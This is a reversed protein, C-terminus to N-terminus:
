TAATVHRGDGAPHWRTDHVAVIRLGPVAAAGLLDLMRALLVPAHVTTPQGGRAVAAQLIAAAAAADAFGLGAADVVCTGVMTPLGALLGSLAASNALDAEGTLRVGLRTRRCRLREPGDGSGDLETTEADITAPHVRAVQQWAGWGNAAPDYHCMASLPLTTFLENVRSEYEVVGDVGGQGTMIASLDGTV